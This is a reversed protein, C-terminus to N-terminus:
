ICMSQFICFIYFNLLISAQVQCCFGVLKTCARSHLLWLRCKIEFTTEKAWLENLAKIYLNQLLCNESIQLRELILHHLSCMAYWTIYYNNLFLAVLGYHISVNGMWRIIAIQHLIGNPSPFFPKSSIKMLKLWILLCMFTIILYWVIHYHKRKQKIIDWSGSKCILLFFYNNDGKTACM